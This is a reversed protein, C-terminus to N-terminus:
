RTSIQMTEDIVLTPWEAKSPDIPRATATFGRSGDVVVSFRYGRQEQTIAPSEKQLQELTAYAGNMAVHQRQAQGIVQLTSRIAVVGIQEQPPTDVMGTRSAYQDYLFYTGALALLLGTITALSRM